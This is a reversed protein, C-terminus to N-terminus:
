DGDYIQWLFDVEAGQSSVSQEAFSFVKQWFLLCNSGGKAKLTAGIDLIDFGSPSEALDTRSKNTSNQDQCHRLYADHSM